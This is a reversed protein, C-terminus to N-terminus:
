ALSPFLGDEGGRHVQRLFVLTIVVILAFGRRSRSLIMANQVNNKIKPALYKELYNKGPIRAFTCIWYISKVAFRVRPLRPNNTLNYRHSLNALIPATDRRM